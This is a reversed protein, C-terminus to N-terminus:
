DVLKCAIHVRLVKRSVEISWSDNERIQKPIGTNHQLLFFITIYQLRGLRIIVLFLQLFSVRVKGKRVNSLYKCENVTFLRKGRNHKRYQLFKM